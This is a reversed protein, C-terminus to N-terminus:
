EKEGSALRYVWKLPASVIPWFRRGVEYFFIGIWTMPWIVAPLYREGGIDLCYDLEDVLDGYFRNLLGHSIVAGFTYLTLWFLILLLIM